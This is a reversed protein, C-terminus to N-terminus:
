NLAHPFSRKIVVPKPREVDFRQEFVLIEDSQGVTFPRSPSEPKLKTNETTDLTVNFQSGPALDLAFHAAGSADTRSIQRSLYVVPLFPGNDAKVAVVVKRLTPPCSVGYEPIKTKDSLRTLKLAVPKAPSQFTDPCKVTVNATAGDGEEGSFSLMARGDAGTTNLTSNNRSILAGVVPRGPDSEVKVYLQFPARPPPELDKCRAAPGAGLAVLAFASFRM